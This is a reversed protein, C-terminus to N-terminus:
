FDGDALNGSPPARSSRLALEEWSIDPEGAITELCRQCLCRPGPLEELLRHLGAVSLIPRECWCPGKYAEGSEL